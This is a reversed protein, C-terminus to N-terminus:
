FQAYCIRVVSPLCMHTRHSVCVLHSLHSFPHPMHVLMRMCYMHMSVHIYTHIYATHMLSTRVNTHIRTHVFTCTFKHAFVYIYMCVYQIHM